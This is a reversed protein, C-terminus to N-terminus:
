EPDRVLLFHYSRDDLRQRFMIGQGIDASWVRPNSEVSEAQTSSWVTGFRASDFPFVTAPRWVAPTPRMLRILEDITALRWDEFGGVTSSNAAAQAEEFPGRHDSNAAGWMLGTCDDTLTGDGNDSFRDARAECPNKLEEVERELVEIRALLEPEQAIACLEPGNQFLYSLMYVPDSLDIRGDCNVDGNGVATDGAGRGGEAPVVRVSLMSLLALANVLLVMVLAASKLARM